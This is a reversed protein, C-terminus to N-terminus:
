RLIKTLILPLTEHARRSAVFRPKPTKLVIKDFLGGHARRRWTHQWFSHYLGSGGTARNTQALNSVSVVYQVAFPVRYAWPASMNLTGRLTGSAILQGFLWCANVYATLHGRLATPLVEVAYVCTVTQFIGLPMGIALETHVHEVYVSFPFTGIVVQGAQLQPLGHAFFQIFILCPLVALALMMTKRFGIKEVIYGAILLGFLQGVNSGNTLGSQWPAPIQYSGNPQQHGYAKQFAPQAFLSGILKLDYGDMILAGSMMVSWAIAKPYLKVAQAFTLSHEKNNADDAAAVFDSHANETQSGVQTAKKETSQQETTMTIAYEQPYLVVARNSLTV